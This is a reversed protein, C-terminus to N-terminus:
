KKLEFWPEIGTLTDFDTSQNWVQQVTRGDLPIHLDPCLEYLPQIVFSYKFIDSRPLQPDSESVEEGFLIIDLDLTRDQYKQAFDSRGWRMEVNRLAQSLETLSLATKMEIVLNFFNDGDFHVPACQYITSLRLEEGLLSLENVAAEVHKEREVNTGVGIYATIM